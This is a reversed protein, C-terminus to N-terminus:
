QFDVLLDPNEKLIWIKFATFNSSPRLERLIQGKIEAKEAENYLDNYYDFLLQQFNRIEKLLKSRLNAAEIKKLTTSGNYVANLLAVTNVVRDDLDLAIIKAEEKPFPNIWYKIKKDVGDSEITCNLINDYDDSKTSNCHVCAYFLNNWDFKLERDGRHPIFHETNISHPDKDECIYCKNKFDVQLRRLVDGCSNNGNAKAKETTLCEPAPQSKEHFIM